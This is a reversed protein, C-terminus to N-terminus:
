PKVIEFPVPPLAPLPMRPPSAPKTEKGPEASIPTATLALNGRQGPKVKEGDSKLVLEVGERWLSAKQIEIGPPPTRLELKVNSFVSRPTASIQVQATGGAPIKVPTRSLIRLTPKLVFSGVPTVKLEQAPVLHRYEFAQTMEDAPVATRSVEHGQITARGEVLLSVRDDPALPPIKLTMKAQSQDAPITGESLTVGDSADKVALKIEDNFGDRRVAHVTV